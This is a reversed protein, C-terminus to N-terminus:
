SNQRLALGLLATGAHLALTELRCDKLDLENDSPLLDRKTLAHEQTTAM